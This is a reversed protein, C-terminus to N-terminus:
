YRLPPDRVLSESLALFQSGKQHVRIKNHVVVCEQHEFSKSDDVLGALPDECPARRVCDM